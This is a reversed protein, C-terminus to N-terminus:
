ADGGALASALGKPAVLVYADHVLADVEDWDADVDLYIGL